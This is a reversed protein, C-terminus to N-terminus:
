RGTVKPPHRFASVLLLTAVPGLLLSLLLWNLGSRSKSQAPGANLLALSGWGISTEQELNNM